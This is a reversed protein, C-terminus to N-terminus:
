SPFRSASRHLLWSLLSPRSACAISLWHLPPSADMPALIPHSMGNQKAALQVLKDAREINLAGNNLARAASAPRSLADAAAAYKEFPVLDDRSAGIKNCVDLVTTSQDLPKWIRISGCGQGHADRRSHYMPLKRGDADGMQRAPCFGFRLHDSMMSAQALPLFRTGTSMGGEIGNNSSSGARSCIAVATEQRGPTQARVVPTSRRSALWTEVEALDWVVCRPSLAFRRPFEGRQEMEYITSDALPVMERLQQRRITRKVSQEAPSAVKL